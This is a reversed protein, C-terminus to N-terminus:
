KLIIDFQRALEFDQRALDKIDYTWLTVELFGFGFRLEPHHWSREALVGIEQVLALATNFDKTKLRRFLKKGEGVLQWAPDLTLLLQEKEQTLLINKM